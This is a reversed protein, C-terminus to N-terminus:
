LFFRKAEGLNNTYITENESSAIVVKEDYVQSILYAFSPNEREYSYM